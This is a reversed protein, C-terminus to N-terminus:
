PKKEERGTKWIVEGDLTMCMMGDHRSNSNSNLYLYNDLLLPPHIQSGMEQSTFLESVQFAGDKREVKIMASGAGYGGTIFLRGDGIPTAPTIPIGCQWGGYSWLVSGDSADIRATAFPRHNLGHNGMKIFSRSAAEKVKKRIVPNSLAKGTHM